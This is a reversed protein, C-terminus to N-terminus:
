FSTKYLSSPISQGTSDKRLGIVRYLTEISPIGSRVSGTLTTQQQPPSLDHGSSQSQLRRVSEQSKQLKRETAELLEQAADREEVASTLRVHANEM